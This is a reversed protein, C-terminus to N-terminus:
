RPDVADSPATTVNIGLGTANFHYDYAYIAYVYSHSYTVTTDSYTSLTIASLDTLWIWSTGDWRWLAYFAVGIGGSNDTTGQWQIDVRNPFSSTGVTDINM